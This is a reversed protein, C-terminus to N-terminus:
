ADAARVEGSSPCRHTVNLQIRAVVLAFVATIAVEILGDAVWPAPCHRRPRPSHSGRERDVFLSARQAAVLSDEDLAQGLPELRYHGEVPDAEQAGGAGR